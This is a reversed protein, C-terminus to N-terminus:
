PPAAVGLVQLQARAVSENSLDRRADQLDNPDIAAPANRVADALARADGSRFRPGLRYRAVIEAVSADDSCVVPVGVSIADMLTGSSLRHGPPFSLVVLDASAFLADRMEDSVTGPFTRRRDTPVVGRAATGGVVLTWEPLCEFAAVVVDPQKVFRDGFM